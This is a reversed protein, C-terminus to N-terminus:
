APSLRMSMPSRWLVKIRDDPLAEAVSLQDLDRSDDNDISAWLLSRLDRVGSGDLSPSKVGAAESKAETTFNARLGRDNMAQVALRELIARNSQDSHNTM